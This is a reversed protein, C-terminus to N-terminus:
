SHRGCAPPTAAPKDSRLTPLPQSCGVPLIVGDECKLPSEGSEIWSPKWGPRLRPRLEYGEDKLMPHRDRWKEEEPSLAACVQAIEEPTAEQSHRLTREVIEM